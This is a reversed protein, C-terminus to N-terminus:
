RQIDILIQLMAANLQNKDEQAKVLIENDERYSQMEVSLTRMTTAFHPPSDQFIRRSSETM